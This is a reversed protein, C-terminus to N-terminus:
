MCPMFHGSYFHGLYFFMCPMFHGLYFYKFPMFHGLYFYMHMAHFTRLLFIHMVHCVRLVFAHMGHFARLLFVHMAHLARLLFIHVAHFARLLFVHMAHLAGFSYMYHEAGFAPFKEKSCIQVRDIATRRPRLAMINPASPASCKKGALDSRPRARDASAQARYATWCIRPVRYAPGRRFATRPGLFEGRRPVRDM